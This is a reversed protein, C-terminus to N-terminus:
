LLCCPPTSHSMGKLKFVQGSQMLPRLRVARIKNRQSGALPGIQRPLLRLSEQQEAADPAHLQVRANGSHRLIERLGAEVVAAIRRHRHRGAPLHLSQVAMLVHIDTIGDGEIRRMHRRFIGAACVTRYKGQRPLLKRAPYIEIKLAHVAEEIDPHVARARAITLDGMGCALKIHCLQDMFPFIRQSNEHEFPARRGIELILVLEAHGTNEAVDIQQKTGRTM